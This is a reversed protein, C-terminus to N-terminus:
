PSAIATKEPADEHLFHGVEPLVLLQYKGQMQGIILEKDLRDTGALILLKGGKAELFKRSLGVFWDQWFPQTTALDTRWRWPRGNSAAAAAGGNTTATSSSSSVDGSGGSNSYDYLLAPVSVRASRGNRITRSRVHWEIGQNLSTFGTPRSLLYSQMSHLADMASGEVVDLVAYALLRDGLLGRKALDTIVAGGLSHGVLIIPPLSEWRLQEQAALLAEYLDTSLTSLSFDQDNSTSTGGHGRADFSFIGAEPNIKRIESALAAFSLGSSGAGHHTVFLPGSGTNPTYYANFHSTPNSSPTLHLNESFHHNWPIPELNNRRRATLEPRSPPAIITSTSSASSASSSDDLIGEHYEDNEGFGDPFDDEDEDEIDLEELEELEEPLAGLPPPPMAPLKALKAKFFDRGLASM